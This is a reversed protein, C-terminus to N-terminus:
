PLDEWNVPQDGEGSQPQVVQDGIKPKRSTGRQGGQPQAGGQAAPQQGGGQQIFDPAMEDFGELSGYDDIYAQKVNEWTRIVQDQVRLLNRRLQDPSQSNELSGLVSNLLSLELESVQGLAGGTPSEERMQQLKSFGINGKVTEIDKALDHAPTGPAASSLSAFGSTFSDVRPIIQDILGSVRQADQVGSRIRSTAKPLFQRKEQRVLRDKKDVEVDAKAQETARTVTAEGRATQEAPVTVEPSGMDTSPGFRQQGLTFGARKLGMFQNRQEPNLGQYFQFERVAAPNNGKASPLTQQIRKNVDIARQSIQRLQQPNEQLMQLGQQSMQPDIRESEQLIRQAQNMDGAELAPLLQEGIRAANGIRAIQEKEGGEAQAAQNLQRNTKREDLAPGRRIGEVLQNLAPQINPTARQNQLAILPNIAM